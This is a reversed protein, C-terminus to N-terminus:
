RLCIMRNQTNTRFKVQLACSVNVNVDNSTDEPQVPSEPVPASTVSDITSQPKTSADSNKPQTQAPSAKNSRRAPKVPSDAPTTDTSKQKSSDLQQVPKSRPKVV